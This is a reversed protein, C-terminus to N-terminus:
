EDALMSEQRADLQDMGSDAVIEVVVGNVVVEVHEGLTMVDDVHSNIELLRFYADSLYNIRVREADRNASVRVDRWVGDSELNLNFEGVQQVPMQRDNYAMDQLRQAEEAVDVAAEGM